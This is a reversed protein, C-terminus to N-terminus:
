ARRTNIACHTLFVPSTPLATSPVTPRASARSVSTRHRAMSANLPPEAYPPQKYEPAGQELLEFIGGGQDNIVVLTLNAPIQEHHGFQLATADYLFTLDGLVATVHRDPHALAVGLASPRPSRATSAQRAAM